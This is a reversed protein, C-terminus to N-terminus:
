APSSTLADRGPSTAGFISRLVPSYAELQAEALGGWTGSRVFRNALNMGNISISEFLMSNRM